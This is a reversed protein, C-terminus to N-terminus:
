TSFRLSTQDPAPNYEIVEIIGYQPNKGVRTEGIKRVLARLEDGSGFVIDRDGIRDKFKDDLLRVQYVESQHRVRWAYQQELSPTIIEMGWIAENKTVDVIPVDQTYQYHLIDNKEIKCSFQNKSMRNIKISSIGEAESIKTLKEISTRIKENEFIDKVASEATIVEDEVHFCANGKEDQSVKTPKRSRLKSLLNFIGRVKQQSLNDRVLDLARVAQDSTLDLMEGGHRVLLEGYEMFIILLDIELSGPKLAEIKLVTKAQKNSVVNTTEQIITALNIIANAVDLGGVSTAQENELEFTITFRKEKM